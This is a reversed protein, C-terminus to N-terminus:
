GGYRAFECETTFAEDHSLGDENGQGAPVFSGAIYGVACPATQSPYGSRVPLIQLRGITRPLM